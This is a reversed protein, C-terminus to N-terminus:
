KHERSGPCTVEDSHAEKSHLIFVGVEYPLGSFLLHEILILKRM